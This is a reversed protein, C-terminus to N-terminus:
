FDYMLSDIEQAQKTGRTPALDTPATGKVFAYPVGWQHPRSRLGSAPDIPVYEVGVPPEGPWTVDGGEAIQAYPEYWREFVPMAATAGHEGRGLPRENKDSGVWVTATLEGDFGVFWGDFENTTGTKGAVLWDDPLDHATGGTVVRRLLDLMIFAVNETVGSRPMPSMTAMRDLRAATSWDPAGFHLADNDILGDPRVFYAVPEIDVTLGKRQFASYVRNIEHPRLCSSGLSMSSTPDLTSEVGLRRARAVVGEVGIHHMLNVTPINRSWALANALTVYGKFDRDANRPKWVGGRGTDVEVPVDSLMTAATVHSSLAEAYVVPKFVSGPQRCGLFSRDFVSEETDFAGVSARMYGTQSNNILISGEYDPWQVIRPATEADVMIVDDAELAKEFSEFEAPRKFHRPAEEPIVWENENASIEVEDSGCRATLKRREVATVRCLRLAQDIEAVREDFQDPKTVRPAPHFGQRRDLAIVGARLSQRALAQTVPRHPMVVTLGGRAWAKGDYRVELLRRAAAVAGPMRRVEASAESRDRLEIATTTWRERQETSIMATEHMRRLVRDRERTANKLSAFPNYASPAPLVGALTAAEGITLNRPDKDFYHWSANTVGEARHGLFVSRLYADLIERKSYTAEIRRAMLLELIKREYSKEDGLFQKALQQTLTSGGQVTKGALFNQYAARLIARSSFAEHTFFNEDEAAIFAGVVHDPLEHLAVPETARAGGLYWGDVTEVRSPYPAQLLDLNPASPVKQALTTLGLAAAAAGALPIWLLVVLIMRFCVGAWGGFRAGERTWVPEM